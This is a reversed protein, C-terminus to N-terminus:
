RVSLDQAMHAMHFDFDRSAYGRWWWATLPILLRGIGRPSVSADLVITTGEVTPEFRYAYEVDAGPYRAKVTYGNPPDLTVHEDITVLIPRTARDRLWVETGQRQRIERVSAAPSGPRVHDDERFDTWWAYVADRSFRAFREIRLRM